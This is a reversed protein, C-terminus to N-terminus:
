WLRLASTMLACASMCAKQINYESSISYSEQQIRSLPTEKRASYCWPVTAYGLMVSGHCIELLIQWGPM